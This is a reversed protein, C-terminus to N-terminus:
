SVMVFTKLKYSTTASLRPPKQRDVVGFAFNKAPNFDSRVVLAYDGETFNPLKGRCWTDHALRGHKERSSHVCPHLEDRLRLLKEVDLAYEVPLDTLLM